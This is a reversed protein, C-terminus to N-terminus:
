VVHFHTFDELELRRVALIKKRYLLTYDVLGPSYMAKTNLM